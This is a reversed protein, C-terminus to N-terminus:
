GASFSEAICVFGSIVNYKYLWNLELVRNYRTKVLIVETANDRYICYYSSNSYWITEPEYKRGPIM